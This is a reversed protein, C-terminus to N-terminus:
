LSSRDPDAVHVGPGPSPMSGTSSPRVGGGEGLPANSSIASMPQRGGGGGGRSRRKDDGNEGSAESEEDAMKTRKRAATATTVATTPAKKVGPTKLGTRNRAATVPTKPPAKTATASTSGRSARSPTRPSSASQRALLNGGGGARAISDRAMQEKESKKKAEKKVKRADILREYEVESEEMVDVYRRGGRTFSCGNSAEWSLLSKRLHETLKPLRKKIKKELEIELKLQKQTERCRTKFRDPDKDATELELRQAVLEERETIKELLPRLFSLKAELSKVADGLENLADDDLREDPLHFASLQAREEAGAGLEDWLEGIKVKYREALQGLKASKLVELRKLEAEGAALTELGMGEVSSSFADQEEKPVELLNWLALIEDGMRELREKRAEREKMLSQQRERLTAIGSVSVDFDAPDMSPRSAAVAQRDLATEPEMRLQELLSHISKYLAASLARREAMLAELEVSHRAMAVIRAEAGKLDSFDSWKPDVPEELAACLSTLRSSSSELQQLLVDHQHRLDEVICELHAMEETLNCVPPDNVGDPSLGLSDCLRFIEARTAAASQVFTELLTEEDKIKEQCLLNFGDLLGELQRERERENYGVRDWIRQLTAFTEAATRTLADNIAPPSMAAHAAGRWFATPM